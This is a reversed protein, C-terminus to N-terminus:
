SSLVGACGICSYRDLVEFAAESDGAAILRAVVEAPSLDYKRRAAELGADDKERALTVLETALTSPEGPRSVGQLREAMQELEDVLDAAAEDAPLSLALLRRREREASLLAFWIGARDRGNVAV